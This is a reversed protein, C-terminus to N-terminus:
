RLSGDLGRNAEGPCRAGTPRPAEVANSPTRPQPGCRSPLSTLFEMRPTAPIVETTGHGYEHIIRAVKEIDAPSDAEVIDLTDFRGTTTYSDKWRVNISESNIRHAVMETLKRIEGPARGVTGGFKTLIVYMEM